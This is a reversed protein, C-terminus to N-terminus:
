ATRGESTGSLERFVGHKKHFEFPITGIAGNRQKAVIVETPNFEWDSDNHESFLLIVVNADQEISGSERLDSLQPRRPVDGVRKFQSLAVIPLKLDVAISKLGRSLYSVENTRNDFRGVSTMLQLYDVIAFRIGREAKLKRLAGHIKPITCGAGDRIYIPLDAVQSAAARIKERDIDLGRRIVQSDIGGAACILGDTVEDESMELTIFANPEGRRAANLAINRAFTSKGGSTFAALVWLQGPRMGCTMRDLRDFGTRIAFQRRRELYNQLSGASMIVDRPTRFEESSTAELGLQALMNEAQGLLEGPNGQELIAQNRIKDAVIVTKRLISKDKVTIIYQDFHSLRPTDNDLEVLYGLGGVSELEGCKILEDSLTVHDIAIGAECMQEIHRYIRRHAELAFDDASVTARCTQFDLSGNIIGGLIMREATLSQPLGKFDLPDKKAM